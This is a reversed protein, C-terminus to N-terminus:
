LRLVDWVHEVVDPHTGCDFYPNKVSSVPAILPRPKRGHWRKLSRLGALVKRNAPRAEDVWPTHEMPGKRADCSAATASFKRGAVHPCGRGFEWSAEKDPKSGGASLAPWGSGTQWTPM